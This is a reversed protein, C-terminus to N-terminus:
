FNKLLHFKLSDLSFEFVSFLSFVFVSFLSFVFFLKSKISNLFTDNLYGFELLSAILSILKLIFFPSVIPIIPPVPLPFVLM